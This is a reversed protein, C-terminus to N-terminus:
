RRMVGLLGNFAVRLAETDPDAFPTDLTSVANSNASSNAAATVLAAAIANNLDVTTVEGPPGEPGPPGQAGEPGEPGPPGAPVADILDKLGNLQSRMQVADIETGAQPINPDFPMLERNETEYRTKHKKTNEFTRVVPSSPGWLNGSSWTAGSSYLPM